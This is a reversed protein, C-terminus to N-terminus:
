IDFNGHLLSNDDFASIDDFAYDDYRSGSSYSPRNSDSSFSSSSSIGYCFSSDVADALSFKNGHSYPGNGNGYLNNGM